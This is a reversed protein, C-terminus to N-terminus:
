VVTLLVKAEGQGKADLQVDLGDPAVTYTTPTAQQDVGYRDVYAVLDGNTKITRLLSANQFGKLQQGRLRSSSTQSMRIPTRSVAGV